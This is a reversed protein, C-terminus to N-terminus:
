GEKTLKLIRKAMELGATGKALDFIALALDLNDHKKYLREFHNRFVDLYTRFENVDM